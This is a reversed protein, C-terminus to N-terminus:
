VRAGKRSNDLLDIVKRGRETFSHVYTNGYLARNLWEAEQFESEDVVTGRVRWEATAEPRWGCQIGHPNEPGCPATPFGIADAQCYWEAHTEGTQHSDNTM